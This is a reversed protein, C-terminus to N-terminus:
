HQGPAGWTRATTQLLRRPRVRARPGRDMGGGRAPSQASLTRGWPRQVPQKLAREGWQHVSHGARGVGQRDGHGPTPPIGASLVLGCEPVGQRPGQGKVWQQLGLSPRGSSVRPGQFGKRGRM